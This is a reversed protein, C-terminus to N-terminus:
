KNLLGLNIVFANAEDSALVKGDFDSVKVGIRYFGFLKKNLNFSYVFEDSDYLVDGLLEDDLYFSVNSVKSTNEGSINAVIDIEGLVITMFLEQRLKNFVYLGGDVPSIIVVSVDVVDGSDDDDFTDSGTTFGFVGCTTNGSGVDTANVFVTYYTDFDLDSVSCLKTGNFNNNSSNSGIFPVTEITWDFGDGEFDFIDVVIESIDVPVDESSDVPDMLSVVPANNIVTETNSGSDGNDSDGGSSDDSGGEDSGDTDGSDDSDEDGSGDGGDSSDSSSDNSAVPNFDVLALNYAGSGAYFEEAFKSFGGSGDGLLICGDSTVLDVRGDANVDGSVIGGGVEYVGGSTFSGDGVGLFIKVSNGPIVCAAAIDLVDDGNFDDVVIGGPNGEVSLSSGSSFGGIGDNLLIYVYDGTVTSCASVAVDALGDGNFDGSGLTSLGYSVEFNWPKGPIFRGDGTGHLIYVGPKVISYLTQTTAVVIDLIDDGNFDDCLIDRPHLGKFIDYVYAEEFGGNKDNLLISVSGTNEWPLIPIYNDGYDATALDLFGDHNFDGCAIGFPKADNDHETYSLDWFRHGVSFFKNERFGGEGNGYFVTVGDKNYDFTDEWEYCNDTPKAMGMNWGTVAVDAFGDIDFDGVVVDWASTDMDYRELGGFKGTKGEDGFLVSLGDSGVIFIDTIDCSLGVRISVIGENSIDGEKDEVIYRLEDWGVFGSDPIYVIMGSVKDVSAVGNSPDSVIGLSSVDLDYVVKGLGDPDYDNDLVKFTKSSDTDVYVKDDVAAPPINVGKETTFSFHKVVPMGSGHDTVRVIWVYKTDKKLNSISCVISGSGTKTGSVSGVYPHTIISYDFVDGEPDEVYVSLMPIGLSVDTLNNVPLEYYVDAPDNFMSNDIVVRVTDSDNAGNNDTVTLEVYYVGPETYTHLVKKGIGTSGDGFNWKYEVIEGDVDVSNSANLFVPNNVYVPKAETFVPEEVVASPAVNGSGKIKIAPDGILNMGYNLWDRYKSLGPPDWFEGNAKVKSNFFADGLVVEGEAPRPDGFIEELFLRAYMSVTFEDGPNCVSNFIGAVAGYEALVLHVGMPDYYEVYSYGTTPDISCSYDALSRDFQGMYSGSSWVIPYVSNTLCGEYIDGNDEILEADIIQRPLDLGDHGMHTILGLGENIMDSLVPRGNNTIPWGLWGGRAGEMGGGIDVWNDHLVSINFVGAPIGHTAHGIEVYDKVLGAGRAPEVTVCNYGVGQSNYATKKASFTIEETAGALFRYETINVTKGERDTFSRLVVPEGVMWMPTSAIFPHGVMDYWTEINSSGKEYSFGPTAYLRDVVWVNWLPVNGTNKVVIKFDATDGVDFAAGDDVWEGDRNKVKLDVSFGIRNIYGTDGVEIEQTYSSNIHPWPESSELYDPIHVDERDYFNPVYKDANLITWTGSFLPMGGCGGASDGSPMSMGEGSTAGSNDNYRYVEEGNVYVIFTDHCCDSRDYLNVDIYAPKGYDMSMEFSLGDTLCDIEVYDHGDLSGDGGFNRNEVLGTVDSYLRVWDLLLLRNDGNDERSPYLGKIEVVLDSSFNYDLLPIKHMKWGSGSGSSGTEDDEGDDAEANDNYDLVVTYGGSIVDRVSLSFGNDASSDDLIILSVKVINGDVTMDIEASDSVSRYTGDDSGSGSENWGSGLCGNESAENGIDIDYLTGEDTVVSLLSVKLSSGTSELKFSVDGSFVGHDLVDDEIFTRWGHPDGVPEGYMDVWGGGSGSLGRLQKWHDKDQYHLWESIVAANLYGDEAPAVMYEITKHVFNSVELPSDAPARGVYLEPDMGKLDIYTDTNVLHDYAGPPVGNLNGGLYSDKSGICAYPLDSAATFWRNVCNEGCSDCLEFTKDTHKCQFTPVTVGYNLLYEQVDVGPIGGGYPILYDPGNPAKAYKFDLQKYYTALMDLYTPPISENLYNIGCHSHEKSEKKHNGWDHDGVFLVYKLDRKDECGDGTGWHYYADRIYERVALAKALDDAVMLHYPISELEVGGIDNHDFYERYIDEVSVVKVKFGDVVEHAEKLDWVDYVNYHHVPNKVFANSSVILMDYSEDPDVLSLYYDFDFHPVGESRPAGQAYYYTTPDNSEIMIYEDHYGPYMAYYDTDREPIGWYLISRLNVLGKNLLLADPNITVTVNTRDWDGMSTGNMPSVDIYRDYLKPIKIEWELNGPNKNWISFNITRTEGRYIDGFSYKTKGDEGDLSYCLHPYVQVQINIQAAGEKLIPVGHENVYIGKNVANSTIQISCQYFGGINGPYLRGGAGFSNETTWMELTSTNVTVSITKKDSKDRSTGNMPTVEIWDSPIEQGEVGGPRESYLKYCTLSLDFDLEEFGENWIDFSTTGTDPKGLQFVKYVHYNLGESYALVAGIYFKVKFVPKYDPIGTEVLIDCCYAGNVLGSTDVVVTVTTKADQIDFSGSSENYLPAPSVGSTPSVSVHDSFMEPIVLSWELDLYFEYDTPYDFVNNWIDFTITKVDKRKIAGFNYEKPSLGVEPLGMCPHGATCLPEQQDENSNDQSAKGGSDDVVGDVGIVVSSLSSVLLLVVVVCELIRNLMKMFTNRMKKNIYLIYKPLYKIYVKNPFKKAFNLL